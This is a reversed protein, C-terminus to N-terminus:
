PSQEEASAHGTKENTRRQGGNKWAPGFDIEIRNSADLLEGAAASDVGAALLIERLALLLSELRRYLPRQPVKMLRAIDAIKLSSEFRLRVLMRDDAPWATMTDRLLTGAHESLGRLERDNTSADARDLAALPQVDETPLPVERPRPTRHPMRRAIEAVDDRTIAPDVARVMPMVEDISRHQRGVLDEIVVAHPGLRHAEASARWRGHTRERQDSLLRQIVITLYTALSSRGEFRRLIDYDNELLALKVMSAADGIDDTAVGVRRCARHVLRDILEVNQEILQRPDMPFPTPFSLYYRLDPPENDAPAAAGCM